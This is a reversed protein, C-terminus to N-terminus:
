DPESRTAAWADIARVIEHARLVDLGMIGGVARRVAGAVDRWDQRKGLAELLFTYMSLRSEPLVVSKSCDRFLVLLLYAVAESPFNDEAFFNTVAELPGAPKWQSLEAAARVVDASLFVGEYGAEVLRAAVANARAESVSGRGAGVRYVGQTTVAVVDLKQAFAVVTADDAWLAHRDRKSAVFSEVTWQGFARVFEDREGPDWSALEEVGVVSANELLRQAVRAREAWWGDDGEVMAYGGPVAALARSGPAAQGRAFAAVMDRTGYTLVLKPTLRLAEDLVELLLITAIASVDVVLLEAAVVKAVNNEFERADLGGARVRLSPDRALMLQAAIPDRGLLKALMALPMLEERYGKLVRAVYEARSDVAKLLPSFSSHDAVDGIRIEQLETREPFRLQWMSMADQFRFAYRHVVQLIAVERDQVAQSVVVRDGVARGIFKRALESAADVEDLEAYVGPGPEIVVWRPASGADTEVYQVASGAVVTTPEMPRSDPNTALVTRIYALHAEPDGWRSRLVDYAFALAALENGTGLLVHLVAEAVHISGEDAAPLQGPDAVVLDARNLRLAAYSLRLRAHKDSPQRSLYEQLILLSRGPDYRELVSAELEVLECVWIGNARLAACTALVVDHQNAAYASQILRRLDPSDIGAATVSQWLPVAAAHAGLASLLYAAKQRVRAPATSELSDAIEAVMALAEATRGSVFVIEAELLQILVGPAWARADDVVQEADEWRSRKALFHVAQMTADDRFADGTEAISILMAVGEDASPTGLLRVALHFRAHEGGGLEVARRLERIVRDVDAPGQSLSWAVIIEWDNPSLRYAEHIAARAEDDRGLLEHLEAMAALADAAIAPENAAVARDRAELLIPGVQKLAEISVNAATDHSAASLPSAQRALLARGQLLFATADAAPLAVLARAHSEARDYDGSNLSRVTLAVAVQYDGKWQAVRPEIDEMKMTAPACRIFVGAARASLGADVLEAAIGFAVDRQGNLEKAIALFARAESDDRQHAHADEFLRAAMEPRSEAVYTAGMNALLRYRQRESLQDWDRQRKRELLTRSAVPQKEKVLLDRAEDIDADHVSQLVHRLPGVREDLQATVLQAILSQMESKLPPTAASVTGAPGTGAAPAPRFDIFLRGNTAARYLLGDDGWFEGAMSWGRFRVHASVPRGDEDLTLDIVQCANPYRSGAAGEYLCGAALEFMRRDPDALVSALPVHQHGRLLLDIHEAVRLRAQDVDALDHLPHHVLGLRFGSLLEGDSATTLMDVQHETLWLRKAEDPAGCMWASDLGVIHISFPHRELRLTKRYGLRGHPSKSPHLEARGLDNTVARWFCATRELVATRWAPDFGRPCEGGAMWDSFEAPAQSAIERLKHWSDAEVTRDVDHNGPVLFLRESPVELRECTQTLFQVGDPYDTPHGWDALDGTFAVIDVPVGDAKIADLNDRWRPGIVRRRRAAERRALDAQPGDLTRAHYDSIHFIRLRHRHAIARDNSGNTEGTNDQTM